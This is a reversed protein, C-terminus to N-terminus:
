RRNRRTGDPPVATPVDRDLHDKLASLPGDWVRALAALVARRTPDSLASFVQEAIAEPDPAPM